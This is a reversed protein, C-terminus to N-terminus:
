VFLRQRALAIVVEDAPYPAATTGPDNGGNAQWAALSTGCETINGTPSFISNNALITKGVGSCIPKSYDGDGNLLVYNNYFQSQHGDLQGKGPTSVEGGYGNSIGIDVYTYVNSAHINDHGEFDNKLGGYGYM